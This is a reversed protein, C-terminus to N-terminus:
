RAFLDETEALQGQDHRKFTPDDISGATTRVFRQWAQQRERENESDGASQVTVKVKRNAETKGMPLRLNLVGDSGVRSNVEVLLM